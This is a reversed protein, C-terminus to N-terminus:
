HTHVRYHFLYQRTQVLRACTKYQRILISTRKLLKRQKPRTSEPSETTPVLFVFVVVFLCTIIIIINYM